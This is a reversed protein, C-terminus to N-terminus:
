APTQGHELRTHPRSGPRLNQAVLLAVRRLAAQEEAILQVGVPHAQGADM